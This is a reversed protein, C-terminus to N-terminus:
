YRGGDLMGMRLDYLPRFRDVIVNKQMCKLVVRRDTDLVAREGGDHHADKQFVHDCHDRYKAAREVRDSHPSIDSQSRYMM